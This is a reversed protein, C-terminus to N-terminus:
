KSALDYIDKKSTNKYKFALIKTIDKSSNSKDKKLIKIDRKVAEIGDDNIQPPILTVIEGKMPMRSHRSLIKSAKGSIREEFKKTMERLVSIEIDGFYSIIDELTKSVKNGTDFLITTYQNQKIKKFKETRDKQKLPLFGEFSFSDSPFGSMALANIAACPGPCSTVYCANEYLEKILKYGPDSILPTGADSILAIAKGENIRSIIKGRDHGSSHDNYCSLKTKVGYHSLLKVSTKTNECLIIDASNMVNLARLTIDDLNGIPTAVIYLGPELKINEKDM